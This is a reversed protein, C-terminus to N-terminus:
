THFDFMQIIFNVKGNEASMPNNDSLSIIIDPWTFLNLSDAISGFYKSFASLVNKQKSLLKGKELLM